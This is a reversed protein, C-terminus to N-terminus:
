LPLLNLVPMYGNHPTLHSCLTLSLTHMLSLSLSRFLHFICKQTECALRSWLHVLIRPGYHWAVLIVIVTAVAVARAVIIM